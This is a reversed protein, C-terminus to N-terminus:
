NSCNKVSEKDGRCHLVAAAFTLTGETLFGSSVFTRGPTLTFEAMCAEGVAMFKKKTRIKVKGLWKGKNKGFGRGM